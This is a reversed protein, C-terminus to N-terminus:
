KIVKPIAATVSEKIAEQLFAIKQANSLADWAALSGTGMNAAPVSRRQITENLVELTNADILRVKLYAFPALVGSGTNLSKTDLVKIDNNMYFGLGELYGTSISTNTLWVDAEARAKTILVLHTASRNTLLSKLFARNDANSGPSDFMANQAQYLGVDPTLLLVTKADPQMHKVASNAAQIASEDFVKDTLPYLTKLNQDLKSGTQPREVVVSFSDGALSLVAYTRAPTEVANAASSLLVLALPAALLTKLLKNM